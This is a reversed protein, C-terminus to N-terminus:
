KFVQLYARCVPNTLQLRISRKLLFIDISSNYWRMIHEYMFSIRYIKKSRYIKENLRFAIPAYVSRQNLYNLFMVASCMHIMNYLSMHM